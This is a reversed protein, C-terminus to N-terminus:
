AAVGRVLLIAPLEAWHWSTLAYSTVLVLAMVLFVMAGLSTADAGIM